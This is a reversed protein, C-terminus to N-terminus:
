FLIKILFKENFFFVNFENELSPDNKSDWQFYKFSFCNCFLNQFKTQM